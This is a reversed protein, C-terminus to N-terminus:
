RTSYRHMVWHRLDARAMREALKSYVEPNVNLQDALRKIMRDLCKGRLKATEQKLVLPYSTCLDSVLPLNDQPVALRDLYQILSM